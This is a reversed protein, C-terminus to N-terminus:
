KGGNDYIISIVREKENRPLQEKKYVSEIRIDLGHHLIYKRALIVADSFDKAVVNIEVRYQFENIGYLIFKHWCM